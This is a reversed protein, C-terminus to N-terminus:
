SVLSPTVLFYSETAAVVLGTGQFRYDHRGVTSPVYVMSYVGTSEKTITAPYAYNQLTSGNRVTLSVATPDAPTGASDTFEAKIKVSNGILYSNNSM